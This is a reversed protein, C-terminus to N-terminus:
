KRDPWQSCVDVSTMDPGFVPLVSPLKPQHSRNSGGCFQGSGPASSFWPFPFPSEDASKSSKSMEKGRGSAQSRGSGEGRGRLARTRPKPTSLDLHAAGSPSCCRHEPRRGRQQHQESKQLRLSSSQAVLSALAIPLRHVALPSYGRSAAALSVRTCCYLGLVALFLYILVGKAPNIKEGWAWRRVCCVVDGSRGEVWKNQFRLIHDRGQPSRLLLLQWRPSFLPAHHGRPTRGALCSPVWRGLHVPGPLETFM